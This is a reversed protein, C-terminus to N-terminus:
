FGENLPWIGAGQHAPETTVLDIHCRPPLNICSPHILRAAKLSVQGHGAKRSVSKHHHDAFVGVAMGLRPHAAMNFLTLKDAFQAPLKLHRRSVRHLNIVQEPLAPM